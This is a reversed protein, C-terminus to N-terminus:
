IIRVLEEVMGDITHIESIHVKEVGRKKLEEATVPGIALVVSSNLLNAANDNGLINFFNAVTSMSTFLFADAKNKILNNIAEKEPKAPFTKYVEYTTVKVGCSALGDTLPDNLFNGKIRLFKKGQLNESESLEKVLSESTFEKPVFDPLLGFESLKKGTGSGIASIKIGSLFRSDLGERKMLEIFYRVGNESSLVLWDFKEESLLVRIKKEPVFLETKITSFSIVEAGQENLLKFLSQSQDEARTCVIRKGHLPKKEFWDLQEHYEVAPSIIFISPAKIYNSQVVRYLESLSTVFTRQSNLTGNEIVAATSSGSMGVNILKEVVYQIQSVGMYIVLTTNKMKGLLEWDVQPSNKDSQEHATVFVCQTILNRHTLPIGAYASAGSAATVGPIIEFDIGAEKLAIAEESGRGFILPDGGKLRVVKKGENAKEILINITDEQLVHHLGDEKGVFIKECEKNCESLLFVNALHDYLVVDAEKLCNLGKVTILGADGPGAGVLYVIGKKNM